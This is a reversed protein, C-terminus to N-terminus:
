SHHLGRGLPCVPPHHPMPCLRTTEWAVMAFDMRVASQNTSVVHYWSVLWSYTNLEGHHDSSYYLLAGPPGYYTIYTIHHWREIVVVEIHTRLYLATAWSFYCSYSKQLADGTYWVTQVNTNGTTTTLNLNMKDMDVLTAESSNLCDLWISAGTSSFNGKLIHTFVNCPQSSNCTLDFHSCLCNSVSWLFGHIWNRICARFDSLQTLLVPGHHNPHPNQNFSLRM